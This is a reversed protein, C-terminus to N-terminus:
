LEGSERGGVYQVEFVVWMGLGRSVFRSQAGIDSCHEKEAGKM